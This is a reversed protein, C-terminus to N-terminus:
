RNQENFVISALKKRLRYCRNIVWRDWQSWLHGSLYQKLEILINWVGGLHYRPIVITADARLFYPLQRDTVRMKVLKRNRVIKHEPNTKANSNAQLPLLITKLRLQINTTIQTITLIQTQKRKYSTIITIQQKNTTLLSGNVCSLKDSSAM